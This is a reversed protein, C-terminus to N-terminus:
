DFVVAKDSEINQDLAIPGIIFTNFYSYIIHPLDSLFEYDTAHNGIRFNYASRM